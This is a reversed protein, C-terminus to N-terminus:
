PALRNPRSPNRHPVVLALSVPHAGDAPDAIPWDCQRTVAAVVTDRHLGLVSMATSLVGSRENESKNLLESASSAVVPHVGAEGLHPTLMMAKLTTEMPRKPDSLDSSCVDSSWDSIRM